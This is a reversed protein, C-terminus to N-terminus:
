VDDPQSYGSVGIQLTINALAKALEVSKPALQELFRERFIILSNVTVLRVSKANYRLEEAVKEAIVTHSPV